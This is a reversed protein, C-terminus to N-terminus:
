IYGPDQSPKYTLNFFFLIYSIWVVVQVGGIVVLVLPNAALWPFTILLVVSFAAVTLIVSILLKLVLIGIELLALATNIATGLLGGTNSIGGMQEQLDVNQYQSSTPAINHDWIATANTIGVATQLLIMYFVFNVITFGPGGSGWKERNTDKVYIAAAILSTMIILSWVQSPNAANNLWGFYAFIGALMPIIIVFFRMNRQSAMSMGFFLLAVAIFNYFMLATALPVGPVQEIGLPVLLNYPGNATVGRSGTTNTGAAVVPSILLLAVLLLVIYIKTGMNCRGIHTM